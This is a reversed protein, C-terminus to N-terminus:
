MAEMEKLFDEFAKLAKRTEQASVTAGHTHVLMNRLRHADWLPNLSKVGQASIRSLRDAMHEGEYGIHRLFSDVLSDAEIIAIRLNDPTPNDAKALIADWKKQLTPDKKPKVIERKKKRTLRPRVQLPWIELILFTIFAILFANMTMVIPKIMGRWIEFFSSVASKQFLLILPFLAIMLPLAFILVVFIAEGIDSEGGGAGPKGKGGARNGGKHTPTAM